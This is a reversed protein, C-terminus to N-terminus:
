IFDERVRNLLVNIGVHAAVYIMLIIVIAWTTFGALSMLWLVFTHVCYFILYLFSGAAPWTRRVYYIGVVGFTIMHMFPEAIYNLFEPSLLVPVGVITVELGEVLVEFPNELVFQRVLVSFVVIIKYIRM